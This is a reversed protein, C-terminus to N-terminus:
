RAPASLVAPGETVATATAPRSAAAAGAGRLAPAPPQGPVAVPERSVPCALCGPGSRAGGLESGPVRIVEIGEAELRANVAVNREQSVVVRPGLVLVCGGDEALGGAWTGASGCPRPLAGVLRVAGVGMAAAAAELFPQPRSVSIGDPGPRVLHATLTYALGPHMLLAGPEVVTCLMDLCAAAGHRATPVVLVAHSLSTEFLRRALREVGAPSTWPGIGAATVGPALQLLDGGALRGPGPGCVCTVGAFAPHCAYVVRTLAAERARAAGPLGAIVVGSGLWTSTDRTFVLHPLPEIVFDGHALLAHVLGRGGPLESATLGGILVQALDEPDLGHLYSSLRGRLDDGLEQDALASTIAEDRAQQYELVDQLLETLYLVEVGHDRLVAALTDHEQQARALWPRRHLLLQQSVRPTLRTLENGPRHLLVARLRGPESDVGHTCAV